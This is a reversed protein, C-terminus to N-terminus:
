LSAPMEQYDLKGSLVKTALSRELGSTILEKYCNRVEIAEGIVLSEM